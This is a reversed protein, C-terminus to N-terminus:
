EQGFQRHLEMFRAVAGDSDTFDFKKLSAVIRDLPKEQTLKTKSFFKDAYCILRELLTQPCYEGEPLPLHQCAIDAATIGAGTHREAIRAYKEGLGAERIIKAGEVGHAIYPATGYCHIGAADTMVIGIDHLMAAEIIEDDTLPLSKAHAIALAKDAVQRCHTLYIERLPGEPYYKDILQLYDM